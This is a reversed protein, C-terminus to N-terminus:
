GPCREAPNGNVPRWPELYLYSSPNAVLYRVPTSLTPEIRNGAAYRQVYQGGASHGAVVIEKLAPFRAKDDLAALLGDMASFSDIASGLAPEGDKWGNCSFALEGDDLADMCGSGDNAKFTRRSSSPKTSVGPTAPPPSPRRSTITVAACRAM